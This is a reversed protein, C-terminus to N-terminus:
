TLKLKHGQITNKELQFDSLISILHVVPFSHTAMAVVHKLATPTNETSFNAQWTEIIQM